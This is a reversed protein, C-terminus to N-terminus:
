LSFNNRTGGSDSDGFGTTTVLRLSTVIVHIFVTIHIFCYHLIGDRYVFPFRM